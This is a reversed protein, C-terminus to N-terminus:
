RNQSELDCTSQGLCVQQAVSLSTTSDCSSTAFNGLAGIPTGYSAFEIFNIFKGPSCTLTLTSGELATGGITKADVCRAAINLNKFVGGCPDGFM